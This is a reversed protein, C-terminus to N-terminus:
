SRNNTSDQHEIYKTILFKLQDLVQKRDVEFINEAEIEYFRQLVKFDFDCEMKKYEQTLVSLVFDKVDSM